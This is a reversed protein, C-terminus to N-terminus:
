LYGLNNTTGKYLFLVTCYLRLLNRKKYTIKLYFVLKNTINLFRESVIETM